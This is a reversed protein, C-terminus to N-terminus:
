TTERHELGVFLVFVLWAGRCNITRGVQFCGPRKGALGSIVRGTGLRIFAVANNRWLRRIRYLNRVPSRCSGFFSLSGPFLGNVPIEIEELKGNDEEQQVLQGLEQHASVQRKPM